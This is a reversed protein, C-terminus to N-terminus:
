LARFASKFLYSYGLSIKPRNPKIPLKVKKKVSTSHDLRSAGWDKIIIYNSFWEITKLTGFTLLLAIFGSYENNDGILVTSMESFSITMRNIKNEGFMSQQGLWNVAVSDAIEAYGKLSPYNITLLKSKIEDDTLVDQNGWASVVLGFANEIIFDNHFNSAHVYAEMNDYGFMKLVVSSLLMPNGYSLPNLPTTSNIYGIFLQSCITAIMAAKYKTMTRNTTTISHHFIYAMTVLGFLSPLGTNFVGVSSFYKTNIELKNSIIKADLRKIFLKNFSKVINNSDTFLNGVIFTSVTFLLGVVVQTNKSTIFRRTFATFAGVVM